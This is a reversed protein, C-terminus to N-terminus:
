YRDGLARCHAEIPQWLAPDPTNNIVVVCELAPYDLRAVSDLTRMLMEPPERYAPVHISVKPHAGTTAM